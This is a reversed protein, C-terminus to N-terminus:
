SCSRFYFAKSDLTKHNRLFFSKGESLFKWDGGMYYDLDFIIGGVEIKQLREVEEILDALANKLSDYSEPEKCAALIHNGEYSGTKEEELITFTFCIVHLRKGINTGDGSLEIRVGHDRRFTSNPSSVKLLHEIRIRLRQELSQQVGQTGNPTPRINWRKNLEQIRDKLKYQRPMERCIKAMEHYAGDSVNYRDKVYLMMNLENIESETIQSGSGFLEEMDQRKLSIQEINGTEKNRVEVGLLTVM